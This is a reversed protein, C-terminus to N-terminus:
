GGLTLRASVGHLKVLGTRLIVAGAFASASVVISTIPVPDSFVLSAPGSLFGRVSWLLAAEVFGFGIRMDKESTQYLFVGCSPPALVRHSVFTRFSSVMRANKLLCLDAQFGKLAM